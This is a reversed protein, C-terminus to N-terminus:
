GDVWRVGYSARRKHRREHQGCWTVGGLERTRAHLLALVDLLRILVHTRSFREASSSIARATFKSPSKPLRQLWIEM